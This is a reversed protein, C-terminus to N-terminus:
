SFPCARWPVYPSRPEQRDHGYQSPLDAPLVCDATDREEEFLPVGETNDGSFLEVRYSTATECVDWNMNWGTNERRLYVRADSPMAPTIGGAVGSAFIFVVALLLLTLFATTALLIRNKRRLSHRRSKEAKPENAGGANKKINKKAEPKRDTKEAYAAYREPEEGMDEPFGAYGEAEEGIEEPFGTYGEPDEATGELLGGLDETDSEKDLEWVSIGSRRGKSAGRKERRMSEALFRERDEIRM